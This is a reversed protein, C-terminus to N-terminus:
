LAICEGDEPIILRNMDIHNHQAENRLIARTTQCHDIADMHVAILRVNKPVEDLMQMVEHEDPLIPGFDKSFEPFVAGGCNVVIYDPHYRDINERITNEWRCDGMVYITPLGKAKLVFGSVPGMMEALKGFGHHGNTRFISLGGLQKMEEIAEVNMFGDHVVTEKDAPQTFFPITYPLYHRVSPEYHDIHNHTLLVMDVDKVLDAASMNLHVRPNKNVGLASRLTEKEALVPDVLICKGAYHIKLTANRVLQIVATKNKDMAKQKKQEDCFDTYKTESRM